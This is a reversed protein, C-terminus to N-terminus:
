RADGPVRRPARPFFPDEDANADAGVALTQLHVAKSRIDNIEAPSLPRFKLRVTHVRTDEAQAKASLKLVQVDVEAGAEGGDTFGVQLEVEAEQIELLPNAVAERQILIMEQRLAKVAQHLSVPVSM